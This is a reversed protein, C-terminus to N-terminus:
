SHLIKWDRKVHWASPYSAFAERALDGPALKGKSQEILAWLDARYNPGMQVRYRYFRNRKSLEAPSMVDRPGRRLMNAPVRLSTSQFREDEGYKKFQYESDQPISLRAKRHLRIYKHFRPDKKKWQFVGCWFRQVEKSQAQLLKVLRDANVCFLHVELWQILVDLVRYDGGVSEVSAAVLTNEINANRSGGGSGILFGISIMDDTLQAGSPLIEPAIKRNFPM